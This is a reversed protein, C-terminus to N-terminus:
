AEVAGKEAAARNSYLECWAEIRVDDASVADRDFARPQQATYVYVALPDDSFPFLATGEYRPSVLIRNVAADQGKPLGPPDIRLVAYQKHRHGSVRREIWCARLRAWEGTLDSSTMYFDPNAM